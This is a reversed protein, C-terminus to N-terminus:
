FTINIGGIITRTQPADFATIGQGLNRAVPSQLNGVVEPDWGKFQTFTLLNQAAVYIRVKQLIVKEKAAEDESGKKMKLKVIPLTYGISLNRLRIFSANHLFRDTNRQSLLNDGYYLNPNDSSTVSARLNNTGTVYSQIREGADLVYNGVSFSFLLSADFKKYTVFNEIGGHFMPVVSKNIAVRSSDIQGLSTPKFRNGNKDLILEDGARWLGNPHDSEAKGAYRPLYFTALQNGEILRIDEYQTAQETSIGDLSVIKSRNAAWVLTTGWTMDNKQMNMTTITIELGTNRLKGGNAVFFPFDVGQSPPIPYSLLMDKTTRSYFDINAFVKNKFLVVDTGINFQDNKEARLNPNSLRFPVRGPYLIPLTYPQGGQWFGQAQLNDFVSNGTRGWSARLKMSNILAIQKMFEEQSIIWAASIAYTPVTNIDAGYRSSADLRAIAGALYKDKFGYDVKAFYSLFSFATEAGRPNNIQRAGSSVLRSFDNPFAESAVGNFSLTTRQLSSGILATLKHDYAFTKFYTLTNSANITFVLDRMDEARATPELISDGAMGDPDPVKSLRVFRSEYQRDLTNYYDLGIDARYTLSPLLRYTAYLNAMNKFVRRQADTNDPNNYAQLNTRGYANFYPNFLYPNQSVNRSDYRVPHIPLATSQAVGWGGRPDLGTAVQDAQTLTMMLNIGIRLRETAINEANFTTSFRNFNGGKLISKESRYAGSVYYSIRDNGGIASASLQNLHGNQLMYDLWDTNTSTAVQETLGAIGTPNLYQERTLTGGTNAYAKDVVNVYESGNLMKVPRRAITTIGGYYNVNVETKKNPKGLKTTVLIVGNAARAGYLATAAADKLVEIKEIDEPNIEALPNPIHGYNTGVGGAGDGYTGSVIPVGDIIYLPESGGLISTTGRVRITSAAGSLGNSQIVQVGAAKGQMLADFSTHLAPSFATEQITSVSSTVTHTEQEYGYGQRTTIPSVPLALLFTDGLKEVLTPKNDSVAVDDPNGFQAINKKAKVRAPITLENEVIFLTQSIYSKYEILIREDRISDNDFVNFAFYGNPGSLTRQKSPYATIEAGVMGTSDKFLVRGVIRKTPYSNDQAFAINAFCCFLVGALISFAYITKRPLMNPKLQM